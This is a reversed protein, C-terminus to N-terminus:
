DGNISIRHQETDIVAKYADISPQIKSVCIQAQKLKDEYTLDDNRDYADAAQICLYCYEISYNLANILDDYIDPNYSNDQLTNVEELIAQRSNIASICISDFAETSNAEAIHSKLIAVLDMRVSNYESIFQEGKSLEALNSSMQDYDDESKNTTQENYPLENLAKEAEKNIINNKMATSENDSLANRSNFSIPSLFIIYSLVLLLLVVLTLWLAKKNTLGLPKKVQIKSPQAAISPNLHKAPNGCKSCFKAREQIESGCKSCFSM